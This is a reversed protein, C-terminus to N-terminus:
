TFPTAPPPPPFPLSFGFMAYGGNCWGMRKINFSRDMSLRYHDGHLVLTKFTLDTQRHLCVTVLSFYDFLNGFIGITWRKSTLIQWEKLDARSSHINFSFQIRCNAVAHKTSRTRDGGHLIFRILWRTQFDKQRQPSM